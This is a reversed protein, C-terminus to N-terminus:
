QQGQDDTKEPRRILKDKSTNELPSHKLNATEQLSIATAGNYQQSYPLAAYYSISSVSIRVQTTRSNIRQVTVLPHVASSCTLIKTSFLRYVFCAFRIICCSTLCIFREPNQRLHADVNKVLNLELLFYDFGSKIPAHCYEDHKNSPSFLLRFKRLVKCVNNLINLKTYFPILAKIINM